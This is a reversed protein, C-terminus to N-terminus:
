RTMRNKRNRHFRNTARIPASRLVDHKGIRHIPKYQPHRQDKEEVLNYHPDPKGAGRQDHEFLANVANEIHQAGHEQDTKKLVEAWTRFGRNRKGAQQKDGRYGKDKKGCKNMVTTNLRSCTRLTCSSTCVISELM